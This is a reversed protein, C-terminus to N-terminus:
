ADALEEVYEFRDRLLAPEAVESVSFVFDRDISGAKIGPCAHLIVIAIIVMLNGPYIHVFFIEVPLIKDSIWQDRFLLNMRLVSVVSRHLM